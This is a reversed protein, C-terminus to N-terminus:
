TTRQLDMTKVDRYLENFRRETWDFVNDYKFHRAAFATRFIKRLHGYKPKDNFGLSRTYNIYTAFEDPLGACLETVPLNTKMQRILENREKDTTARLGQWPLKGRAFYLLM